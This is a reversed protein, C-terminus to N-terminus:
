VAYARLFASVGMEADNGIVAASAAGSIGLLTQQLCGFACLGLLQQAAVGPEEHRLLGRDMADALYGALLDRTRGVARDHFIQGTEPFRNAEGIVLRHLASAENSTVKQLFERAFRRLAVGIEDRPNLILSLQQRFAESARDVVAAFLQEKSPFYSWLTGKSGGLTAAIASMSTGAYGLDMFSHEAVDLIAERRSLRRAERRGCPPASQDLM